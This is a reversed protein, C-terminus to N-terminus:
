KRNLSRITVGGNPQEILIKVRLLNGHRRIVYTKGERIRTDDTNIGM